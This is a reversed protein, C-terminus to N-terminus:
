QLRVETGTKASEYIADVIRMRELSERGTSELKVGNQLADVFHMLENQYSRKYINSLSNERAPTVNVMSGHLEKHIRLPNLLAGGQTGFLNAYFVDKEGYLSWSAEMSCASGNTFQIFSGVADEVDLGAVRNYTVAKVSEAVPNGMLWLGLDLMQVGLDMLVGGGSIRRDTFWTREGRKEKRRLWGMKAYFIDGLEGGSAFNKLTRADQRFRVNMAVMLHRDYREAAEVMQKAEDYNLAIPKEVLVHLGASLSDVAVRMHVNTPVCIDAAEALGSKLLADESHFVHPIKFRDAVWRAKAKNIDCVAVVEAGEIRKWLPIHVVQAISGTGIVAIRIRNM